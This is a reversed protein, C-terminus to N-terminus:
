CGADFLQIPTPESGKVCAELLEIMKQTTYGENNLLLVESLLEWGSLVIKQFKKNAPNM